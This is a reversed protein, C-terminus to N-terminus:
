HGNQASVRAVMGEPVNEVLVQFVRHDRWDGNIHLYRPALGVETMGLKEVVRLSAENEPRVSIEVRHLKMTFFLHDIVMAVALPTIGQGAVRKSIWYGISAARASGLTVGNVTVQGVMEGDYTVAFPLVQGQRARRRMQAILAGYSMPVQHVGPPLTAEWPALWERDTHRLTQWRKADRRRLPRVGVSGVDLKVRWVNTM